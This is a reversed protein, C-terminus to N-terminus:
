DGCPLDVHFTTGGDECAFGIVGGHREVIAKAISLGLGTGGKQRTDSSDAQTFKEFLQHRFDDPIGPGDDRVWLRVWSGNRAAGMRVTGGAPSFKAANSMLNALVQLLRDSDGRVAAEPPSVEIRFAIDRERGYGSFSDLAEALLNAVTLHTFQFELRGSEIKDMDLLDNILLVLRECNRNAVEIMSHAKDAVDGAAGGLILGLAGKISTLPTRLEHSVTSVFESKLKEVKKLETIDKFIGVYNSVRGERDTVTTITLWKPYDEGNKRRDWIEGEWFGKGQIDDWMRRYFGEDHRGSKSISPDAGIIEERSFGTIQLYTPNVDVIRNNADTILIADGANQFVKDSLKLRDEVVQRQRIETQLRRNWLLMLVAILVGAGAVGAVIRLDVKEEFQVRIWRNYIADREEPTISDLAKQLIPVLEPWDKRVAMSLEFRYPTQGSVKLNTIGQERMVQGAVALNGVFAYVQGTSVAELGTRVTKVLGLRLEPHNKALLDHTAYSEVVAVSRTRLGSIGDVFPEDRRTVIVMPSSIYPRTFTVFEERQPTKVVCSFADLHRERVAEVVRAWPTDKEVAFRIGLREAVLGMYDAAMGRYHKSEDVFEFPPWANDVGLRIEPHAALWAKEAATLDPPAAAAPVAALLAAVLVGLWRGMRGTM